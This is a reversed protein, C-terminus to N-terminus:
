SSRSGSGSSPASRRPGRSSSTSFVDKAPPSRSLVREARSTPRRWDPSGAGHKRSARSCSRTRTRGSNSSRAITRPPRRPTAWRKTCSVSGSARRPGARRISSRRGAQVLVAHRPLARVDRGGLGEAGRRRVRAGPQASPLARVRQRAKRRLGRRRASVRRDRGAGEGRGARCLRGRRARGGGARTAPHHGHGRQPLTRADGAGQGRQEHRGASDTAVFYPRDVAPKERFPTECHVSDLRASLAASPGDCSRRFRSTASPTSRNPEHRRPRPRAGRPRAPPGRADGVPGGLADAYRRHAADGVHGFATRM